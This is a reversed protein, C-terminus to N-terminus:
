RSETRGIWAFGIDLVIPDAGQCAVKILMRDQLRFDYRDKGICFRCIRRSSMGEVFAMSPRHPLRCGEEPPPVPPPGPVIPRLSMVPLNGAQALGLLEAVKQHYHEVQAEPGAVYVDDVYRVVEIGPDEEQPVEDPHQVREPPLEGELHFAHVEGTRRNWLYRVCAKFGEWSLIVVARAGFAFIWDGSDVGEYTSQPEPEM